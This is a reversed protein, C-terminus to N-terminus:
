NVLFFIFAAYVMYSRDPVFVPLFHCRSCSGKQTAGTEFTAAPRPGGRSWARSTQSERCFRRIYSDYLRDGFGAESVPRRRVTLTSGPGASARWTAALKVTTPRHMHFPPCRGAVMVHLAEPASLGMEIM